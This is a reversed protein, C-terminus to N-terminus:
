YKAAQAIKKPIDTNEIKGHFLEAGAGIAFVPIYGASHGGSAWSVMAIENLIQKALAAMPEDKSYLSEALKVDKGLFSRIYEEKLQQEQKDNLKVKSWLGLNESLLNKIDNWTIDNQKDKRLQKIRESLETESVKQYELAKLNLAYKGNGLAIGGTEHDATIVILTENPHKKYFEYAIKVANDMDIVENFVTAADNSHCAWDIKGGEIMVFFGNKNDKTLFSIASETIQSLTLDGPKRDIAYPISHADTNDQQMLIMKSAKNKKAKFDEYGKAVTYNAEKFLTYINPANKNAKSNPELFGSGAYFDFGAKPLDTAIEYYMNRDPQHAYFTAPTAHDISVSTTIGVKKGAKKAKVAISYLPSKRLSDMGITGNKTKVGTALATGAAASCTVSNYVSYTTAITSYPFQAFTLPKVGIRGEKEALYMETGNVQNVGMGDGIFYFVYKATKTQAYGDAQSFLFGAFLIFTLLYFKPKM